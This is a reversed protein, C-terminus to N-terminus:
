EMGQAPPSQSKTATLGESGGRQQGNLPNVLRGPVFLDLAEREPRRRPTM